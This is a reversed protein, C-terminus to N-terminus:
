SALSGTFAKSLSTPTTSLRPASEKTVFPSVDKGKKGLREKNKRKRKKKRYYLSDLLPRVNQFPFLFFFIEVCGAAGARLGRAGHRKGPESGLKEEIM